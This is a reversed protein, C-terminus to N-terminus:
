GNEAGPGGPAPPEPDLAAADKGGALMRAEVLRLSGTLLVADAARLTALAVPAERAPVGLARAAELLVARTVGPLISGDLPPTLLVGGALAFVNARTTELVAGAPDVLLARAGPASAAEIRELWARDVLKHAGFGRPVGVPALRPPEGAPPPLATLELEVTLGGQAPPRALVRLRARGGAGAALRAVRVGLDGPPAVGYLARCSGGLREAHRAWELPRGGAVLVTEFVGLSPEAAPAQPVTRWPLWADERM